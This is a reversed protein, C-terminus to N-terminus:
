QMPEVITNLFGLLKFPTSLFYCMGMLPAVLIINQPQSQRQVTIRITLTQSTSRDIDADLNWPTRTIITESEIKAVKWESGTRQADDLQM